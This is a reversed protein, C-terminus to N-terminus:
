TENNGRSCKRLYSLTCWSLKHIKKHCNDCLTIGNDIDLSEIPNTAVPKVHHAVLKKSSIGCIQCTYNDRKKVIKAWNSQDRRIYKNKSLWRPYKHQKFVSCKNKCSESCYFYNSGTTKGNISDIRHKVNSRSPVFIVGCNNCEVGLLSLVNSNIVEKIKYVKHYKSLKNAYTDYLPKNLETVGGKWSPNNCGVAKPYCKTCRKGQTIDNFKMFFVSGCIKCRCELKQKNNEYSGSLLVFGREDIIKAVEEYSHKKVGGCIACGNSKTRNQQFDNWRISIVHGNSCRCLMKTRANIYYDQLLEWGKHEFANKVFEYTLKAPM